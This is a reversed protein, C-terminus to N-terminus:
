GEHIGHPSGVPTQRPLDAHETAVGCDIRERESSTISDRVWRKEKSNVVEGLIEINQM